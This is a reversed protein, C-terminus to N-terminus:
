FFRAVHWELASKRDLVLVMGNSNYHRNYVFLSSIDYM